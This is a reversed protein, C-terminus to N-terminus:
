GNKAAPCWWLEIAVDAVAATVAPTESVSTAIDPSRPEYEDGCRGYM